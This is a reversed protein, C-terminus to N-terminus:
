IKFHSVYVAVFLGVYFGGVVGLPSFMYLAFVIVGMGFIMKITDPIKM